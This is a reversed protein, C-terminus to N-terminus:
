SLLPSLRHTESPGSHAPVQQQLKGANVVVVSLGAKQGAIGKEQYVGDALVVIPTTPIDPLPDLKGTPSKRSHTEASQM